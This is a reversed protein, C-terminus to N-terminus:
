RSAYKVPETVGRGRGTTNIRGQQVVTSTALYNEYAQQADKAVKNFKKLERDLQKARKKLDSSLEELKSANYELRRAIELAEFFQQFEVNLESINSKTLYETPNAKLEAIHGLMRDINNVFPRINKTNTDIEMSISQIRGSEEFMVSSAITKINNGSTTLTASYKDTYREVDTRFKEGEQALRANKAAQTAVNATAADEVSKRKFIDFLGM